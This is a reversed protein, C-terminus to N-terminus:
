LFRGPDLLAILQDEIPNPENMIQAAILEAALPISVVGRSGFGSCIFVGERQPHEGVVPLRDPTSGRLAARETVIKQTPSFVGPLSESAALLLQESARRSATLCSWNREYTSGIIHEGNIAPMAYGDFCIVSRLSESDQDAAIHAVQGKLPEVPLGLEPMLERCEFSNALVVTSANLQEDTSLVLKWGIDARIIEKVRAGNILEIGDRNILHACWKKPQIMGATPYFIAKQDKTPIGLLAELEGEQVLRAISAPPKECELEKFIKELRENVVLQVAGAPFWFSNSACHVSLHMLFFEFARLYFAGLLSERHALYPQAVAFQNGSAASAIQDSQEILKVLLGRKSLASALHCGALGAGVVVVDTSSPRQYSAKQKGCFTGRLSERKNGFGATKEVTFGHKELGRRVYGAATFTAFTTGIKSRKALLALVEDDWMLSNSAPAFGDLYLCDIQSSSSSLMDKVCGVFLDLTTRYEVFHVRHVGYRLSPYNSLLHVRLDDFEPWRSIVSNLIDPALLYKEVSLFYLWSNQSSTAEWAKVTEFFNLGSGFGLEGVTFSDRGNFREPLSNPVLFVQQVGARVDQAPFYLDGFLNSRLEGTPSLSVDAYTVEFRNAM